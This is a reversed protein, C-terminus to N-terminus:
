CAKSDAGERCLNQCRQQSLANSVVETNARKRKGSPSLLDQWLFARDGDLWHELRSRTFAVRQNTHQGGARPPSCLVAKPLMQLETWSALSNHHVAAAIAM